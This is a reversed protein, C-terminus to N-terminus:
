FFLGLFQEFLTPANGPIAATTTDQNEEAVKTASAPDPNIQEAYILLRNISTGAPTCTVLTLMPKDYGIQLENIQAPKIVKKETIKYTYRTGNYHVYFTDGPVLHDALVFAFKYQGQAFVDNSSHGLIVSNGYQGPLANAGPLNYRVAAHQLAAQIKDESLTNITFDAPMDVNIKPIILRTEPGVKTSSVPDNIVLNKGELAGPSIYAEVQAFLISNFQIFMFFLGVLCATLLPWFHSSRRFRSAQYKVQGLIDNRLAEAREKDNGTAGKQTTLEEMSKKSNLHHYYRRYYEQYYGQWASHYERWDFKDKHTRSYVSDHKEGPEPLKDPYKNGSPMNPPDQEYIRRIQERTIDAAHQSSDALTQTDPDSGKLAPTQTPKDSM